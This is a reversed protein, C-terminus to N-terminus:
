NGLLAELAPLAVGSTLPPLTQDSDVGDGLESSLQDFVKNSYPDKFDEGPITLRHRDIHIWNYPRFYYYGHCEPFYPYHPYM